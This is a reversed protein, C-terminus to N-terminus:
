ERRSPRRGITLTIGPGEEDSSEDEDDDEATSTSVSRPPSVKRAAVTGYDEGEDDSFGPSSLGSVGQPPPSVPSVPADSNYLGGQMYRPPRRRPSQSDEDSSLSKRFDLRDIDDDHVVPTHRDDDDDDFPANRLELPHDWSSVRRTNSLGVPFDQQQPEMRRLVEESARAPGGIRSSTLQKKPPRSPTYSLTAEPTHDSDEPSVSKPTISRSLRAGGFLRRSLFNGGSPPTADGEKRSSQKSTQRSLPTSNRLRSLSREVAPAKGPVRRPTTDTKHRGLKSM